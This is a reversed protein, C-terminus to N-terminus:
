SNARTVHDGLDSMDLDLGRRRVSGGVNRCLETPCYSIDVAGAKLLFPHYQAALGLPTSLSRRIALRLHHCSVPSGVAAESGSVEECSNKRMKMGEREPNGPGM